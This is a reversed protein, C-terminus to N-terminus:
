NNINRKRKLKSKLKLSHEIYLMIEKAINVGTSKEIGELGPSSNVELVLPGRKSSIIDVGCISLGMAKAANIATSKEKRTLKHITASGGQHLNSRFENSKATRKMAGVVKGGVIFVRIDEGNAEKIFEQILINVDLGNFADLVSKASLESDVLVVGKRQTGELVKMILPTSGALEIVDKSSSKNSAFVTKPIDVVRSLSQVSRLKDRSRTLALSSTTSFVGMSEFQRIVANGYFTRSAGIRPIIADPKILTNGNYNMVRKGKVIDLTCKLYDIVKVDYGFELAEDYLRKTSYITRGRSLIYVLKKKEEVM